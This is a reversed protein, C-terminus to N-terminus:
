AAELVSQYTDQYAAGAVEWGAPRLMAAAQMRDRVAGSRFASMARTISSRLESASPTEFLFGTVDDQITDALGGTNRAIPLSGFRQAYMQSLGCPEFRSPMLLFDSGAYMRRALGEDFGIEVGVAGPHRQALGTMAAELAREGQGIVVVQGGEGVISDAAEVVLDVGKQHVLRSVVAFLPGASHELGFASRVDVANGQRASLDTSDFHHSIHRDSRPDYSADIGNLIGTLHGQTARERLLGDLGCGLEPTLIERAYTPSVTTLHSAYVLGAKLFSIKGYFEVGDQQFAAEPIGLGAGRSREFLGQYALNHVTLISPTTQGRWAMYAPALSSPWDNVHVLQPTWGLGPAGAAIDAAALGLRAFRVDNDAWEAGDADGYPSGDRDFLEPCLLVYILLGDAARTAGIRAAPIRGLAPLEAIVQLEPVQALAQRYGPILVRMDCGQRRLMRPLAASIEGLGGAKLLGTMESTVFLIRETGMDGEPLTEHSATLIRARHDSM